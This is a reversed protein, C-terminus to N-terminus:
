NLNFKIQFFSFSTIIGLYEKAGIFFIDDVDFVIQHTKM